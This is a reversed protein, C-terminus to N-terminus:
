ASNPALHSLGVRIRHSTSRWFGRAQSPWQATFLATRRLTCMCPVTYKCIYIKEKREKKRREEKKKRIEEKKRELFPPQRYIRYIPLSDSCLWSLWWCHGGNRGWWSMWPPVAFGDDYRLGQERSSVLGSRRYMEADGMQVTVSHIAWCVLSGKPVRGSEAAIYELCSVFRVAEKGMNGCTEVAFPVFRFAAHDPVYTIMCVYM